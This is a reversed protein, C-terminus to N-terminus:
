GGIVESLFKIVCYLRNTNEVTYTNICSIAEQLSTPSEQLPKNKDGPIYGFNEVLINELDLLASENSSVADRGISILHKLSIKGTIASNILGVGQAEANKKIQPM